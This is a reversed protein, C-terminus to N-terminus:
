CSLDLILALKLWTSLSAKTWKSIKLFLTMLNNNMFPVGQPIMVMPAQFSVSTMCKLSQVAKDEEEGRPYPQRCVCHSTGTTGSSDTKM